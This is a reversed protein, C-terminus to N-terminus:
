DMLESALWVRAESWKKNVFRESIGVVAAIEPVTLRAFYKLEVVTSLDPRVAKLRGIAECIALRDLAGVTDDVGDTFTASAWELPVRRHEAARPSTGIGAGGRKLSAKARYRDILVSRMTEAFLALLRPPDDWPVTGAATLRMTAENVLDTPQFTQCAREHGVIVRALGRLRAYVAEPRDARESSPGDDGRPQASGDDRM